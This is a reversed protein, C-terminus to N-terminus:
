EIEKRLEDSLLDLYDNNNKFQNNMYDILLNQNESKSADQHSISLDELYDIFFWARRSTKVKKHQLLSFNDIHQVLCPYYLYVPLKLKSVAYRIIKEPTFCILKKRNEKVCQVIKQLLEKPYYTCQNFSFMYMKTTEKKYLPYFFNIIANSHSQIATEIKNAFDRCLIIDDEMLIADDNSIQELQNIFNDGISHEYDYLLTYEIQSFSPSLIRDGTTRVYYKCNM